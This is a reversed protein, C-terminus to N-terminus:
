VKPEVYECEVNKNVFAKRREIGKEKAQAVNGNEHQCTPRQRHVKAEDFLLTLGAVRSV